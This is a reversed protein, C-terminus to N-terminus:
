IPLIREWKIGPLRNEVTIDQVLRSDDLVLFSCREICHLPSSEDIIRWLQCDEDWYVPRAVEYFRTDENYNEYVILKDEVIVAKPYFYQFPLDPLSMWTSKPPDYVEVNRMYQGANIGAIVYVREHFAVAAFGRRYINPPPLFMWTDREHEFAQCIMIPTPEVEAMGIIYIQNQLTVAGYIVIHHTMMIAEWTNTEFEYRFIMNTSDTGHLTGGISYLQDGLTAIWCNYRPGPPISFPLWAEEVVDFVLNINQYVNFMYIYSGIQVMTDVFFDTDGIQRWFDLENDYTLFIESGYKTPTLTHRAILNLCNPMRPCYSRPSNQDGTTECRAHQSLLACKTMYCNFQNRLILGFCHPNNSVITHSLIEAALEEDTEEELRLCTLLVPVHPLRTYTDAETWSVIAKWVSKESTVNLSESKLLKKLMEFPLDELGGNSTKLADEFHVLAFRYNDKAVALREFQWAISLSSLCNACTMNQIAFSRCLKLLDDLLLYDSIIMLDWVNREDLTIIGTYIYVLISDLIKSDVNPIVVTEQNLNFSFLARFYGSRQSLVVRHIKFTAGDDTQLTGDTFQQQGELVGSNFIDAFTKSPASM